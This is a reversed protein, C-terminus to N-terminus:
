LARDRLRLHVDIQDELSERCPYVHLVEVSDVHNAETDDLLRQDGELVVVLVLQEDM